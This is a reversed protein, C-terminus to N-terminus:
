VSWIDFARDGNFVAQDKYNQIHQIYSNIQEVDFKKMKLELAYIGM